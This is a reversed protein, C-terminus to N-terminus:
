ADPREQTRPDFTVAIETGRLDETRLSSRLRGHHDAHDELEARDQDPTLPFRARVVDIPAPDSM